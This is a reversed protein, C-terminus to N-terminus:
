LWCCPYFLFAPCPSRVRCRIDVHEGRDRMRALWRALEHELRKLEAQVNQQPYQSALHRLLQEALAQQGEQRLRLVEQLRTTLPTTQEALTGARRAPARYAYEQAKQAPARAQEAAQERAEAENSSADALVKAAPAAQRPM